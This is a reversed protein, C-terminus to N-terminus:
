SEPTMIKMTGADHYDHDKFHSTSLEPAKIKVRGLCPREYPENVLGSPLNKVYIIDPKGLGQTHREILGIGHETDLERLLKTCKQNACGLDEMISEMSYYIYARNQADLWGNKMSLTMRDLMLGYLLKADTSLCKFRRDKVLSQPIRFFAFQEAEVGYYFDFHM